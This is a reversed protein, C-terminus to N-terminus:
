SEPLEISIRESGGSVGPFNTFFAQVMYPMIEHLKDSRGTSTVEGEFLNQSQDNNPRIVMKLRRNYNQYTRVNHQSMGLPYYGFPDYMNGFGYPSGYYGRYGGRMGRYPFWPNMYGSYYSGYHMYGSMMPSSRVTTPGLEVDYDLEVVLDAEEGNAPVYGHSGLANGVLTAYNAFELSGNNAANMPIIVIKEGSPAPLQHFRTVNNRISQNCSALFGVLVLTIIIKYFRGM